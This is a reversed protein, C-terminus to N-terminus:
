SPPSNPGPTPARRWGGRNCLPSVKPMKGHLSVESYAAHCNYETSQVRYESYMWLVRSDSIFIGVGEANTPLTPM